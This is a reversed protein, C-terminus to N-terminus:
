WFQTEDASPAEYEYGADPLEFQLTVEPARRLLSVSSPRRRRWRAVLMVGVALFLSLMPARCLSSQCMGANTSSPAPQIAGNVRVQTRLDDIQRKLLYVKEKDNLQSVKKNALGQQKSFQFDPASM